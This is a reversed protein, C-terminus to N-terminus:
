KLLFPPCKTAVWKRDIDDDTHTDAQKQLRKRKAEHFFIYFFNVSFSVYLPLLPFIPKEHCELTQTKKEENLM